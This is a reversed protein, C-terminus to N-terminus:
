IGIDVRVSGVELRQMDDMREVVRLKGFAGLTPGFINRPLAPRGSTVALDMPYITLLCCQAVLQRACVAFGTKATVIGYLVADVANCGRVRFKPLILLVPLYWTHVLM